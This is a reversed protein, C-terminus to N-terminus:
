ASVHQCPSLDEGQQVVVHPERAGADDGEDIIPVLNTFYAESELALAPIDFELRSPDDRVVGDDDGASVGRGALM